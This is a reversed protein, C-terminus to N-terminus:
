AAVLSIVQFVRYCPGTIGLLSFTINVVTHFSACWLQGASLTPKAVLNQNKKEENEKKM